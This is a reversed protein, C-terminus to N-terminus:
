DEASLWANMRGTVTLWHRRILWTEFPLVLAFWVANGALLDLGPSRMLAFNWETPLVLVLLMYAWSCAVIGTGALVMWGLARFTAVLPDRRFLYERLAILVILAAYLFDEIVAFFIIPLAGNFSFASPTKSRGQNEGAPPSADGSRISERPQLDYVLNGDEDYVLPVNFPSDPEDPATLRGDTRIAVQFVPDMVMPGYIVWLAFLNLFFLVLFPVAAKGIVIQRPTLPTVAHEDRAGPKQLMLAARYVLFFGVILDPRFVMGLMDFVIAQTTTLFTTPPTLGMSALVGPSSRLLLTLPVWAVLVLLVWAWWRRRFRRTERQLVPNERFVLNGSAAM